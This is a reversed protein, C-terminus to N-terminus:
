LEDGEIEWQHGCETCVRVIDIRYGGGAPYTHRTDPDGRGDDCVPCAPWHPPVYDDLYHTSIEVQHSQVQVPTLHGAAILWAVFKSEDATRGNERAAADLADQHAVYQDHLSKWDLQDEASFVGMAHHDSYEGETLLYLISTM